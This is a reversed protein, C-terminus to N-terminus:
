IRGKKMKKFEKLVDMDALRAYIQTTELKKHGLARKVAEIRVGHRLCYCAYTHRAVHSTIHKKIGCNIAVRDLFRNYDSHSIFPVQWEWQELVEVAFPMVVCFFGEKTKTRKDVLVTQGDIKECKTFDKSVLDRYALGTGMQVIFRLRAMELCPLLQKTNLWTKIEKDTLREREPEEGRDVKIGFTVHTPILMEEQAMRIYKRLRKWYDYVTSQKIRTTYVTGDRRTKTADRTSIWDLFALINRKTVQEFKRMKGYECLMDYMVMHHKRTDNTIKAKKIHKGVFDLFSADYRDVKMAKTGPMDRKSSIANGITSTAKEVQEKIMMNLQYSSPHNVVWYTESWQSPLVRVGTSIYKRKTRSFYVRLWVTGPTLTEDSGQHKYDYVIDIKPINETYMTKNKMVVAGPMYGSPLVSKPKMPKM